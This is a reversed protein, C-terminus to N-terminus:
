FNWFQSVLGIEDLYFGKGLLSVDSYDFFMYMEKVQTASTLATGDASVFDSVPFAMFGKFGKVSAGQDAGFCGDGGNRYTKWREQGEALYYFYTGAENKNDTTYITGDTGVLGFSAERFDVKSFDVWMRLYRTKGIETVSDLSVAMATNDIRGKEDPATVKGGKYVSLADSGNYGKGATVSLIANSKASEDFPTENYGGVRKQIAKGSELTIAQGDFPGEGIEPTKDSGNTDRVWDYAVWENSVTAVEGNEGQHITFIRGGQTEPSVEVPNGAANYSGYMDTTLAGAFGLEIGKWIGSSNNIHDHGVYFGTMDGRQVMTDLMHSNVPGTAFGEKNMGKFNVEPDDKHTDVDEFEPLCVHAFMAGPIKAGNYNEMIMSKTYYWLQQDYKVFDYKSGPDYSTYYGKEILEPNKYDYYLGDTNLNQNYDGTDIAWVNFAISTEDNTLIPLVYNGIGFVGDPGATAVCHPYSEYIEQQRWKRVDTRVADFDGMDNDHNGYTIAWPIGDAELRGVMKDVYAIFDEEKELPCPWINDGTIVVLDPDAADVMANFRQMTGDKIVQGSSCNDQFDSVQLVKFSGDEHCKLKVKLNLADKVVAEEAPFAKIKSVSRQLVLLADSVTLTANGEEDASGDVNARDTEYQNFEVKGVSSQLVLLADTVDVSSSYDVDGYYVTSRKADDLAPITISDPTGSYGDKPDITYDLASASLGAPLAVAAALAVAFATKATKKLLNM